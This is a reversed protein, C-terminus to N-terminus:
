FPIEELVPEPQRSFSLVFDAAKSAASAAQFIFRSDRNLADLWNSLYATSNDESQPIGLASLVFSTGLEAVLEEFAYKRDGFRAHQLRNLRSEHGTLHVIEHFITSYYGNEDKFRHKLPCVIFDGTPNYAARDGGFRIELGMNQILDEAPQYDVFEDNVALTSEDVKLHDFPGDCQDVNYVCYTKAIPFSDEMEEGTIPDVETKTVKTFFIIKTGWQGPKVSDPRRQVRGGMDGVQNFTMWYKSTFGHVMSAMRLLLVNVGSYRRNSLANTPFGSNPSTGWPRRWPPVGGSKLSEIIQNTIQSRIDEQKAM